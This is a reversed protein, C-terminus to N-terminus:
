PPLKRPRRLRSRTPRSRQKFSAPWNPCATKTRRTRMLKSNSSRSGASPRRSDRSSTGLRPKPLELILRLSVSATRLSPWPLVAERPPLDNAEGLRMEIEGIQAELAKKAKGLATTHDQEARLEDALRAADVMARKAKEEGM